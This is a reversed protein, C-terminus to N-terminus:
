IPELFFTVSAWPRAALNELRVPEFPSSRDHAYEFGPTFGFPSSRGRAYAYLWTTLAYLGLPARVPVQECAWPRVALNGPRVPGFISELLFM